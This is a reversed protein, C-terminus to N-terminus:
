GVTSKVLFQTSMCAYNANGTNPGAETSNNTAVIGLGASGSGCIPKWITFNGKGQYCKIWGNPPNASSGWNGRM